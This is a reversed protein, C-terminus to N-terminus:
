PTGPSPPLPVLPAPRASPERRLVVPRDPRRAARGGTLRGTLWLGTALGAIGAAAVWGEPARLSEAIAACAVLTVLPLLYAALSARLLLGDPIGIVVRDGIATGIPDAVALRHRRPAFLRGLLSPACGGASSCGGCPSRRTTEVWVCGPQRDM